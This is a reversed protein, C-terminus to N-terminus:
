AGTAPTAAANMAAIQDTIIAIWSQLAERTRTDVFYGHEMTAYSTMSDAVGALRDAPTLITPTSM